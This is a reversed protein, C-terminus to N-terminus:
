FALQYSVQLLELALGVMYLYAYEISIEYFGGPDTSIKHEFVRYPVAVSVPALIPLVQFHQRYWAYQTYIFM